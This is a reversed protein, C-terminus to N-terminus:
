GMIECAVEAASANLCTSTKLGVEASSEGAGGNISTLLSANGSNGDFWWKTEQPDGTTGNDKCHGEHKAKLSTPELILCLVSGSLKIKVLASCEVEARTLELLLAYTTGTETVDHVVKVKGLLLVVGAADGATSCTTGFTASKCGSFKTHGEGSAPDRVLNLTEGTVSTCSFTNRALTELQNEGGVLDMKTVTEPLAWPLVAAATSTLGAVTMALAAVIGATVRVDM